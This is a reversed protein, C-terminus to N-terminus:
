KKWGRCEDLWKQKAKNYNDVFNEDFKIEPFLVGDYYEDGESGYEFTISCLHLISQGSLQPNKKTSYWKGEIYMDGGGDYYWPLSDLYIRNSGEIFVECDGYKKQEELLSILESIKV